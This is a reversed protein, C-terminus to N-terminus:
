KEENELMRFVELAQAENTVFVEMRKDYEGLNNPLQSYVIFSSGFVLIGLGALTLLELKLSQFKKVSPLMAYGILFGSLLGGLHAANDM